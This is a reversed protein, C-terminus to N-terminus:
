PLEPHLPHRVCRDFDADLDDLAELVLGDVTFNITGGPGFVFPDSLPVLPREDRSIQTVIIRSATPIPALLALALAFACAVNAWRWGMTAARGRTARRGRADRAVPISSTSSHVTTTRGLDLTPKKERPPAQSRLRARCRARAAEARAPPSPPVRRPSLPEALGLKALPSPASRLHAHLPLTHFQPHPPSAPPASLRAGHNPAEFTGSQRTKERNENTEDRSKTNANQKM